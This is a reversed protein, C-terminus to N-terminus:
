SFCARGASSIRRADQATGEKRTNNWLNKEECQGYVARTFVRDCPSGGMEQPIESRCFCVTSSSRPPWEPTRYFAM